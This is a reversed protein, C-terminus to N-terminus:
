PSMETGHLRIAMVVHRPRDPDLGKAMARHYALWQLYPMYLVARSRELVSARLEFVSDFEPHLEQDRNTIVAVRAYRKKLDRLVALEYDRMRSSLLGVILHKEDVLSMPGHRFEMYHYAEAVSLSMEKMKVTAEAALGYLPGSGLYTIRRISKDQAVPLAAERARIVLDSALDPVQRLEEELARNHATVAALMQVAMLMGSFSRTQAYSEEQSAKVAVTLACAKALPTNEYCSIALAKSGNKRLTEVALITESTEGSRSLAIVLPRTGPVVVSDTQLALESSPAARCPIRTVRQFFPAAFQALCHTSGCGIFVIGDRAHVDVLEAIARRQTGIAAIADRWSAEQTSIEEYSHQGVPSM